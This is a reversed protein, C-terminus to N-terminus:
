YCLKRGSSDEFDNALLCFRVVLQAKVVRNRRSELSLCCVSRRFGRVVLSISFCQQRQLVKVFLIPGRLTPNKVRRREQKSHTVIHWVDLVHGNPSTKVVPLIIATMTWLFNIQWSNQRKVVRRLNWRNKLPPRKAHNRRRAMYQVEVCNTIHVIAGFYSPVKPVVKQNMFISAGHPRRHEKHVDDIDCRGIM